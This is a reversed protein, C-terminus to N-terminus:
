WTKWLARVCSWSVWTWLHPRWPLILFIRCFMAWWMRTPKRQDEMSVTFTSATGRKGTYAATKETTSNHIGALQWQPIRLIKRSVKTTMPEAELVVESSDFGLVEFVAELSCDILVSLSAHFSVLDCCRSVLAITYLYRCEYFTSWLNIHRRIFTIRNYSNSAVKFLYVFRTQSIEMYPQNCPIVWWIEM